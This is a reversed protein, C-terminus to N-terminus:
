TKGGERRVKMIACYSSAVIIVAGVASWPSFTEDWVWYAILAIIPLRLFDLPLVVSTDAIALARSLCYHTLIGSLGLLLLWPVHHWEPTTWALYAPGILVLSQIVNMVFVMTGAEEVESLKKVLINNYSFLVAGFIAILMAPPVVEFGPRVVFLVGIFGVIMGTWRTRGIQEKLLAAAMLATILPITFEISTVEALPIIVVASFMCYQASVHFLNRIVQLGPRRPILLRWGKPAMIITIAILGIFARFFLLEQIAIDPKLARVAISVGGLGAVMGLGWLSGRLNNSLPPSSNFM